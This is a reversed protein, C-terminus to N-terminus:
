SEGISGSGATGQRPTLRDSGTGQKLLDGSHRLVLGLTENSHGSLQASGAAARIAEVEELFKDSFGM